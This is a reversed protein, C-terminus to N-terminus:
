DTDDYADLKKRPSFSVFDEDDVVGTGACADCIEQDVSGKEKPKVTGKGRCKGCTPIVSM